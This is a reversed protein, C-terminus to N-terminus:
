KPGGDVKLFNQRKIKTCKKIYYSGERAENGYKNARKNEGGRYWMYRHSRDM